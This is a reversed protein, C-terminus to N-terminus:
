NCRFLKIVKSWNKWFLLRVLYNAVFLVNFVISNILIPTFGLMKRKLYWEHTMPLACPGTSYVKKCSYHRGYQLLNSHKGIDTVKSMWFSGM